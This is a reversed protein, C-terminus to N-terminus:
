PKRIVYVSLRPRNRVEDDDDAFGGFLFSLPSSKSLARLLFLLTMSPSADHCIELILRIFFGGHIATSVRGTKKVENQFYAM